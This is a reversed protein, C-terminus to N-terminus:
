RTIESSDPYALWLFDRVKNMKEFDKYCQLPPVGDYGDGDLMALCHDQLEQEAGEEKHASLMLCVLADLLSKPDEDFHDVVNNFDSTDDLKTKLWAVPNQIQV